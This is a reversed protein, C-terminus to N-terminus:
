GVLNLRSDTIRLQKCFGDLSKRQEKPLKSLDILRLLANRNIMTVDNVKALQRASKTFKTNAIVVGMRADYKKLSAVIEQVARLSVKSDSRKAQVAIRDFGKELIVDCGFDGSKKTVTTTYDFKKFLTSLFQEFEFGTMKDIMSLDYSIRFSKRKIPKMPIKDDMM